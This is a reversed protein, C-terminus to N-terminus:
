EVPVHAGGPVGQSFRALAGGADVSGIGNEIFHHAPRDRVQIHQHRICRLSGVGVGACGPEARREPSVADNGSQHRQPEVGGDGFADEPKERRRLRAGDLGLAVGLWSLDQVLHTVAFHRIQALYREAAVVAADIRRRKEHQQEAFIEVAGAVEIRHPQQPRIDFRRQLPDISIPIAVAVAEDFIVALGLITERILTPLVRVVRNEMAVAASRFTRDRKAFHLRVDVTGLPVGGHKRRREPSTM